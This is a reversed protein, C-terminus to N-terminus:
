GSTRSREGQAFPLRPVFSAGRDASYALLRGAHVGTASGVVRVSRISQRRTGLISIQTGPSADPTGPSPSIALEAAGAPSCVLVTTAIAIAIMVSTLRVRRALRRASGTSLEAVALEAGSAGALSPSATSSVV